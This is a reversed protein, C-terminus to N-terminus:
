LWGLAVGFVLAMAIDIGALVGSGPGGSARRPRTSGWAAYLYFWLYGFVVIPLM